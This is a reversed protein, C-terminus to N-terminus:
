RAQPLSGSVRGLTPSGAIEMGDAMVRLGRGMGYREGTRDYLITLIHGHYEVKDLFFYDWTGEPLLPNVEVTNDDRPRLGVLGSIILDNYTSHNYDKGREVIRPKTWTLMIKRALWEGTYPNLNEDIWPTVTGDDRKIHQSKTYISLIDFYDRKSVVSQQYNNLLNAMATLTVSTSFPWSPGNWQCEHGTYAVKFDPSRQEATTLGYPAYFGKPDMLQKWAAEFGPDPLNVYWPTYGILERGASLTANPRVPIFKFFQADKDWLKEQVLQKLADAKARFERAVDARGLLDAINAIAQADAFMYSNITPRYGPKRSNDGIPVEMGDRVDLQWFLGNADQHTKEWEQYNDILDPFLEKVERADGTVLYRNWLADAIWFSYSRLSGGKHLWFVAYDDLYKPDRLWRGEYFHLAAACNISNYKGAWHVDPLFETIIYGDPTEKIHKRYTWWRFYYIEEMTKDPCEFVPINERLFAWADANRIAAPYLEQDHANFADVYHKFDGIRPTAAFVATSFLIGLLMGAVVRVSKM